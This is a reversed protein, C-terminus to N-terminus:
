FNLGLENRSFEIVDDDYDDAKERTTSTLSEFVTGSGVRQDPQEKLDEQVSRTSDVGPFDYQSPASLWQHADGTVPAQKRNDMNRARDSRSKHKDEVRVREGPTVTQEDVLEFQKTALETLKEGQKRKYGKVGEKEVVPDRKSVGRKIAETQLTRARQESVGEIQSAKEGSSAFDALGEFVNSLSESRSEGVDDFLQFQEKASPPEAFPDGMVPSFFEEDTRESVRKESEYRTKGPRSTMPFRENCLRNSRKANSKIM